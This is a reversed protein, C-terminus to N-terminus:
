MSREVEELSTVGQAVLLYGSYALKVFKTGALSKQIDGITPSKLMVERMEESVKLLEFVGRRGAFGTGVCKPCGRPSYIKEVGQGAEGMRQLQEPTPKSPVKCAPCLQRVLRQALVLQLGSAVLYPELGLDLLRFITGMSDRSHVTSFVLHGTIAAQLAIRATEPDRVEGVLIADPDQRLVSRLLAAFTNGQAENVPIQTVGDLQIEVPDEITVVNREGVDIDRIVAYLTSTKGSGTPGCVLFMGSDQKMAATIVEYMWEPLQLDWVHYPTNATDLIRVVLKQGFMAPAFSVRYDVRRDPVRSSFHGEQVINRQAIDIDSLVKVLSTVRIGMEKPLRVTDVMTGDVRIRVSYDDQKPEIHIDSARTRFCILLILRLIGVAERAQDIERKKPKDASGKAAHALQGRANVLAIDLETFKKDPLSEATRVLVKEFDAATLEGQEEEEDFDVIVDVVKPAAPGPAVLKMTTKGVTVTDGDGIRMVKVLQGNVRTGNSSDLDRVRLGGEPAKEIVCHYRSANGEALVIVNSAHRGITIPQDNVPVNRRGETNQIEIYPETMLDTAGRVM